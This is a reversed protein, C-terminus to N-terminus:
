GHATATVAAEIAADYARAVETVDQVVASRWAALHKWWLKDPKIYRYLPWTTGKKMAPNTLTTPLPHDTLYKRLEAGADTLAACRLGVYPQWTKPWVGAPDVRLGDASFAIAIDPTEQRTVCWSPRFVAPGFVQERTDFEGVMWGLGIEDASVPLERICERAANQAEEALSAWQAIQEQRELFFEVQKDFTFWDQEPAENM